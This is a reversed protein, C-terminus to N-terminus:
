PDARRTGGAARVGGPGTAPIGRAASDRRADFVRAVLADLSVAGGGHVVLGFLIVVYLFESLGFLSGLGDIESRLATALAVGMTCILPVAALRTVLGSLLLLGCVLETTAVFPAQLEPFPIGLSAFYSIVGELNGLKGYGARAFVLGVVVRALLLAVFRARDLAAIARSHLALARDLM